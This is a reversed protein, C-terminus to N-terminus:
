ASRRLEIPSNGEARDNEKEEMVGFKATNREETEHIVEISQSLSHLAKEREIRENSLTQEFSNQKDSKGNLERLFRM